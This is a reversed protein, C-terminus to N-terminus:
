NTSSGQTMIRLRIYLESKIRKDRHALEALSNTAFGKLSIVIKEPKKGKFKQLLDAM